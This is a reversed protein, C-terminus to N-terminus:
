AIIKYGFYMIMLHATNDVIVYILVTLGGRLISHNLTINKLSQSLFWQISRGRVLNLYKEALSFKDIIFHSLFVLLLWKIRFDWMFSCVSLTYVACHVACMGWGLGSHKNKNEAMKANQLFYDGVVHGFLMEIM